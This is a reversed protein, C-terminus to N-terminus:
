YQQINYTKNETQILAGLLLDSGDGLVERWDRLMLCAKRPPLVSPLPWLGWEGLDPSSRLANFPLSLLEMRHNFPMESIVHSNYIMKPTNVRGSSELGGRSLPAQFIPMAPIMLFGKSFFVGAPTVNPTRSSSQGAACVFLTLRLRKDTYKLSFVDKCM